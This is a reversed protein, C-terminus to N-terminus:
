KKRRVRSKPKIKIMKKGGAKDKTISGVYYEPMVGSVGDSELWMKNYLELEDNTNTIEKPVYKKLGNGKGVSSTVRNPNKSQKDVIFLYGCGQCRFVDVKIRNDVNDSAIYQQQLWMFKNGCTTCPKSMIM